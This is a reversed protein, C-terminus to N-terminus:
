TTWIVIILKALGALVLVATVGWWYGIARSCRAQAVDRGVTLGGIICITFGLVGWLIGLTLAARAITSM